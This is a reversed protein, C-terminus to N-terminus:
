TLHRPGDTDRRCLATACGEARDRRRRRRWGFPEAMQSSDPIVDEDEDEDEDVDVAADTDENDEVADNDEDEDDDNDSPVALQSHGLIVVDVVDLVSTWSV